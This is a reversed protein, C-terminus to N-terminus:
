ESDRMVIRKLNKEFTCYKMGILSVRPLVRESIEKCTHILYQGMNVPILIPLTKRLMVRGGMDM